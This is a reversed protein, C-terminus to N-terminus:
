FFEKPYEKKLLVRLKLALKAIEFSESDLSLEGLLDYLENLKVDDM